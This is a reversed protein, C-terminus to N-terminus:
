QSPDEAMRARRPESEPIEQSNTTCGLSKLCFLQVFISKFERRFRKNTAGYIFPNITSSLYVLFGYTLYSRRSLTQEGHATDIYDIALVPIWCFAFGAMATALTKTVKAEEVHARLQSPDNEQSFVQNTRAVTHFVKFYCVGIITLPFSVYVTEIFATYAINTHFTYLCMAKGAQFQFGGNNFSFSVVSGLLASCWVSMIYLFAQRTKFLVIYKSPKVVCFYRSVAIVAMTHLSVLGFTFVAFGHFRCFRQGFTWRGLYLTVVSFPICCSSMFIDSVALAVVFMNALTRLRQGRYVAYCVSFNGFFAALNIISLSVTEVIIIHDRRKSLEESLAEGM